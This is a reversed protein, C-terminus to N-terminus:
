WSLHVPMVVPHLPLCNGHASCALPCLVPEGFYKIVLSWLLLNSLLKNFSGVVIKKVIKSRWLSCMCEDPKSPRLAKKNGCKSANIQHLKATCKSSTVLPSLCYAGKRLIPHGEQYLSRPVQKCIKFYAKWIQLNKHVSLLWNLQNILTNIPNTSLNRLLKTCIECNARSAYPTTWGGSGERMAQHGPWQEDSQLNWFAWASTFYWLSILLINLSFWLM